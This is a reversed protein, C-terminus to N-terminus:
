ESHRRQVFCSSPKQMLQLHIGSLIPAMYISRRALNNFDYLIILLNPVHRLVSDLVPRLYSIEFFTSDLETSLIGHMPM